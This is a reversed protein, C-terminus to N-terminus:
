RLLLYIGDWYRDGGGNLRKGRPKYRRPILFRILQKKEDAGPQNRGPLEVLVFLHDSKVLNSCATLPVVMQISRIM